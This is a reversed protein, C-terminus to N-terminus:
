STKEDNRFIKINNFGKEKLYLAHLESLIWKDCYFLYNKKQNLKTFRSNIDYFPINLIEVKELKLPNKVRKDEERIDIVIEDTIESVKEISSVQKEDDFIGRIDSTIRTQFAENIIEIDIKEFEKVVKDLRAETTPNVSIMGCYEPMSLSYNYTWITKAIEIIEQKNFTILPRLILANTFSDIVSMNVLTQSSVQGISEGTVIGYYANTQTIMEAVKHMLIKLIVWRYKTEIKTVIEYSLKEFDVSIFKAKYSPSFSQHIYKSIQKVWIEHTIWWLNFFLYDVRVWRKAMLFSSVSSDFWGSILSVVREQVWVPYGWVWRLTETILHFKDTAIDINVIIDPNKLSVKTNNSNHLLHWGIEKEADLSGFIHSWTRKVRVVFSKGEIKDKYYDLAINKTDELNEFKYTKVISFLEIGPVKRLIEITDLAFEDDIELDIKDFSHHLKFKTELVKLSNAINTYLIKTFRKRVPTSKIMIERGYRIIFKM